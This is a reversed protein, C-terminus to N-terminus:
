VSWWSRGDFALRLTGLSALSATPLADITQGVSQVTIKNGSAVVSRLTLLPGQPKTPLVVTVPGGRADVFIALEAGTARYMRASTTVAAGGPATAGIIDTFAAQVSQQVRILDAASPPDSLDRFIKYAM